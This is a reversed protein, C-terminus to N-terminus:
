YKGRPDNRFAQDDIFAYVRWMVLEPCHWTQNKKFRAYLASAKQPSYAELLSQADAYFWWPLFRARAGPEMLRVNDMGRQIIPQENPSSAALVGTLHEISKQGADSAESVGVGIPVHGVFPIQQKKSEEAIAFYADRPLLSWVKVFDVGKGKLTKVAARAEA